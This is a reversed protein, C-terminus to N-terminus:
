KHESPENLQLTNFLDWKELLARYTGNAEVKKLGENFRHILTTSSPVKKAMLVLGENTLPAGIIRLKGKYYTDTNVFAPLADMIVADIEDEVLNDLAVRMNSYTRFLIASYDHIKFVLPSGALIGVMQGGLDSFSKIESKKHVIIVPGTLYFPDSFLYRSNLIPTPSTSTMIANFEDRILGDMLNDTSVTHVKFQLRAEKSIANLLEDTFATMNREKGMLDLPYWTPDRGIRYVKSEILPGTCARILFWMLFAAVLLYVLTKATKRSMLHKLKKGIHAM